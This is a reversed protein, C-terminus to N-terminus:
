VGVTRSTGISSPAKWDTLLFHVTAIVFLTIFYYMAVDQQFAGMLWPLVLIVALFPLEILGHVRFPIVKVLGFRNDTMGNLLLVTGALIWAANRAPEIFNFIFPAVVNLAVVGYDALVHMDPSTPKRAM